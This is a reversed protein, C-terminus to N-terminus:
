TEVDCCLSCEEEGSTKVAHHGAYEIEINTRATDKVQTLEDIHRAHM